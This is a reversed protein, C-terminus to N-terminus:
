YTPKTRRYQYLNENIKMTVNEENFPFHKEVRLILNTNDLQVFVINKSVNKEIKFASVFM